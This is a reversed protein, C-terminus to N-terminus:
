SCKGCLEDFSQAHFKEWELSDAFRNEFYMEDFLYKDGTVEVRYKMFLGKNTYYYEKISVDKVISDYMMDDFLVLDYFGLQFDIDFRNIYGQAFATVTEGDVNEITEYTDLKSSLEEGHRMLYDYALGYFEYESIVNAQVANRRIYGMDMIESDDVVQGYEAEDIAIARFRWFERVQKITKGEVNDDIIEEKILAGSNFVSIFFDANDINDVSLDLLREYLEADIEVKRNKATNDKSNNEFGCLKDLSIELLEAIGRLVNIDAPQRNGNEWMSIAKDTYSADIGADKLKQNLKEAFKAQTLKQKKRFSTILDGNIGQKIM